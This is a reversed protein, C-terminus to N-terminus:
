LIFLVPSLTLVNSALIEGECRQRALKISMPAKETQLAKTSFWFALGAM